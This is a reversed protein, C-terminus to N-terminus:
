MTFGIKVVAQYHRVTGNEIPARIRVAEVWQLNRPTQSARYRGDPNCARHEGKILLRTRYNQLGMLINWHEATEPKAYPLLAGTQSSFERPL